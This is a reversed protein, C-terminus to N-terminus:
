GGFRQNESVQVQYLFLDADIRRWRDNWYCYSYNRSQLGNDLGKKKVIASVAKSAIYDIQLTFRVAITTVQKLAQRELNRSESPLSKNWLQESKENEALLRVGAIITDAVGLNLKSATEKILRIEDESMRINLQSQRGLKNPRGANSKKPSELNEGGKRLYM